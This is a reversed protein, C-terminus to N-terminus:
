RYVDAVSPNSVRSLGCYGAMNPQQAHENGFICSIPTNKLQEVIM